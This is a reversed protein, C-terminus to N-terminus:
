QFLCIALVINHGLYVRCVGRSVIVATNAALMHILQLICDIVVALSCQQIGAVLARFCCQRPQM